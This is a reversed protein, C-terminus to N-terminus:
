GAPLRGRPVARRPQLLPREMRDLDAETVPGHLGIAKTESLPSGPGAFVALGGAVEEVDMDVGPRRRALRRVYAAATFAEIEELRQALIWDSFLTTM